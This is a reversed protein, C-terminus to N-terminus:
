LLQESNNIEDNLLLPYTEEWIIEDHSNTSEVCLKGEIQVGYGIERWNKERMMVMKGCNLPIGSKETYQALKSKWWKIIM